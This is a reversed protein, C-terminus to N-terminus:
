PSTLLNGVVFFRKRGCISANTLKLTSTDQKNQTSLVVFLQIFAIFLKSRYNTVDSLVSIPTKRLWV